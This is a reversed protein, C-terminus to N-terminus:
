FGLRAIQGSYLVWPLGDEWHYALERVALKVEEASAETGARHSLIARLCVARADDDGWSIEDTTGGLVPETLWEPPNEPDFSYELAEPDIHWYNIAVGDPGGFLGEHYDSSYHSEDSAPHYVPPIRDIDAVIVQLDIGRSARRRAGDSFGKNTILIGLDAQVDEIFGIMRDVGDVTINSTYYKCDVAATVDRDTIGAFRGKVLVDVQRDVGSFKGTLHQDFLVTAQNGAWASLKEFIEQEYDRWTFKDGDSM